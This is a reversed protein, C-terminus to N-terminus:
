ALPITFDAVKAGALSSLVRHAYGVRETPGLGVTWFGGTLAADIGAAADEFVICQRPNLRMGGAVWIFLDPAPKPNVVSYGDGLVDFLDLIQLQECVRRANKSASAVGLKIGARKAEHLFERVGPLLNNPTIEDLYALYYNNKREMLAQMQSEPYSRGNLLLELSRRRDVGRLADNDERTFPINLEEAIRKWSRFHYEATDTLVGDLDFIFGITM